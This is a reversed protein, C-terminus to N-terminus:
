YFQELEFITGIWFNNWNSFQELEFITWIKLNIIQDFKFNTWFLINLNLFQEFFILINLFLFKLFYFINMNKIFLFVFFLISFFLLFGCIWCLIFSFVLSVFFGHTWGEFLTSAWIVAHVLWACANPPIYSKGIKDEMNCISHM